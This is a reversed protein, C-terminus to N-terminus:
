AGCLGFFCIARRLAADQRGQVTVYRISLTSDSVRRTSRLKIEVPYEECYCLRHKPIHTVNTPYGLVLDLHGLHKVFRLTGLGPPLARALRDGSRRFSIALLADLCRGRLDAAVVRRFPFFSAAM